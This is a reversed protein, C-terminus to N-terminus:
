RSDDKVFPRIQEHVATELTIDLLTIRRFIDVGLLTKM